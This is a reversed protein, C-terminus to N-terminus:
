RGKVIQQALESLSRVSETEPAATGLRSSMAEALKRLEGDKVGTQRLDMALLTDRVSRPGGGGSRKAPQETAVSVPAAARAPASAASPTGVGQQQAREVIHEIVKRLTNFDRLSRNPDRTVGFAERTRAFIDVQKVTDIGLDAELDLDLELMDEPYGTKEVVQRMLVERVQEFLDLSAAITSTPMVPAAPAPAPAPAAPAPAAPAPRAAVPAPAPAAAAASAGGTTLIRDLIHEIVKQLTNFDRLARNPDRTVGFHERTRAFIDVQKVTDIGLDAELDLNMELMDEPYGTKAVVTDLLV